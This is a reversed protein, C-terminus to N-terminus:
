GKGFHEKKPLPMEDKSIIKPKERPPDEKVDEMKVGYKEYLLKAYTDADTLCTKGEYNSFEDRVKGDIGIETKVKRGSLSKAIIIYGQFGFNDKKEESSVKFGLRMLVNQIKDKVLTVEIYKQEKEEANKFLETIKSKLAECKDPIEEYKEKLLQEVKKIEESFETLKNSEWKKVLENSQFTEFIIKLSELSSMAKKLAAEKRQRELEQEYTKNLLNNATSLYNEIDKQIKILNHESNEGAANRILNNIKRKINEFETNQSLISEIGLNIALTSIAELQSTYRNITSKLANIRLRRQEEENLKYYWTRTESM